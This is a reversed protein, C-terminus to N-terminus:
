ETGQAEVGYSGRYGSVDVQGAEGSGDLLPGYLAAPTWSADQGAVSNSGESRGTFSIGGTDVKQTYGIKRINGIGSQKVGNYTKDYLIRLDSFRFPRYLCIQRDAWYKM